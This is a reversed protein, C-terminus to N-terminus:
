RRFDTAYGSIYIQCGRRGKGRREAKLGLKDKRERKERRVKRREKGENGIGGKERV